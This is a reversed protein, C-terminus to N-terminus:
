TPLTLHLDKLAASANKLQPMGISTKLAAKVLKLSPMGIDQHMALLVNKTPMLMPLQLLASVLSPQPKLFTDLQATFAPEVIQMGTDPTMALLVNATAILTHHQPQAFM